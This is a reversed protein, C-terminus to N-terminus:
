SVRRIGQQHRSHVHIRTTFLCEHAVTPEDMVPRLDHLQHNVRGIMWCIWISCLAYFGNEFLMAKEWIMQSAFALFACQINTTALLNKLKLWIELLLFREHLFYNFCGAVQANKQWLKVTLQIENLKIPTSDLFVKAVVAIVSEISQLLVHQFGQLGYPQLSDPPPFV